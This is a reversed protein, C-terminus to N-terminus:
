LSLIWTALKKADENSVPHVPKMMPVKGWVGMGGNQIVHVLHAEAKADGAYKKAVDKYAPGVIKKDVNHCTLCGYKQAMALDASAIGSTMALASVTAITLFKM